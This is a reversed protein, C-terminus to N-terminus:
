LSKKNKQRVRGYFEEMIDIFSNDKHWFPPYDGQKKIPLAPVGTQTPPEIQQPLKRKGSWFSKLDMNEPLPEEQLKAYYSESPEIAIEREGFSSILAQGLPSKKLEKQLDEKSLGRLEFMLFPDNDFEAAVLYYVGAIHKCPNAWDPCSCHTEFDKRSHPLLHLSLDSFANEITDPMENMLLKSVFSAKSSIHAIVKTWDKKSIAKITIDTKYLPEKYVGFYPNISGRVKATISGKELHFNLVKGNRAYSRGRGLRASDSFRELAEIFRKGWWTRTFRAM